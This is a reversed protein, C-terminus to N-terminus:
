LLVLRGATIGYDEGAAEVLLELADTVAARGRLRSGRWIRALEQRRWADAVLDRGSAMLGLIVVGRHQPATSRAV